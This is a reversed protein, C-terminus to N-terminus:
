QSNRTMVASVITRDFFGLFMGFYVVFMTTLFSFSSLGSKPKVTQPLLPTQVQKSDDEQLHGNM